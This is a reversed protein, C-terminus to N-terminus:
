VREWAVPLGDIFMTMRWQRAVHVGNTVGISDQEVPIESEVIGKGAHLAQTPHSLGLAALGVKAAVRVVIALISSHFSSFSLRLRDSGM